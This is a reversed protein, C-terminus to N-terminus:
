QNRPLWTFEFCANPAMISFIAPEQKSDIRKAIPEAIDDFPVTRVGIDIVQFPSLDPEALIFLLKASDRVSNRLRDDHHIGIAATEVGIFGEEVVRAQRHVFSSRRIEPCSDEM